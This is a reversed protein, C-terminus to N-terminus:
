TTNGERWLRVKFEGVLKARENNNNNDIWLEVYSGPDPLRGNAMGDNYLQIWGEVGNVFEGVKTHPLSTPV